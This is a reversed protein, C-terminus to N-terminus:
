LTEVPDYAWHYSLAPFYSTVDQASNLNGTPRIQISSTSGRGGAGASQIFTFVLNAGASSLSPQVVSGSISSTVRNVLEIFGTSTVEILSACADTAVSTSRRRRLAYIKGDFKVLNTTSSVGSTPYLNGGSPLTGSMTFEVASGPTGSFSALPRVLLKQSSIKSHRIDVFSNGLSMVFGQVSEVVGDDRFLVSVEPLTVDSTSGVVAIIGSPCSEAHLLELGNPNQSSGYPAFSNVQPISSDLVQNLYVLNDTSSGDTRFSVLHMRGKHNVPRVFRRSPFGRSTYRFTNGFQDTGTHQGFISGDISETFQGGLITTAEPSTAQALSRSRKQQFWPQLTSVGGTSMSHGKVILAGSSGQGPYFQFPSSTMAAMETVSWDVAPANVPTFNAPTGSQLFPLLSGDLNYANGSGVSHVSLVRGTSSQVEAFSTGNTTFVVRNTGTTFFVAGSGGVHATSPVGFNMNTTYTHVLTWSTGNTSTYILSSNNGPESFVVFFRSLAFVVSSATFPFCIPLACTQVGTM